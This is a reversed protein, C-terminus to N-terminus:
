RHRSQAHRGSPGDLWRHGSAPPRAGDSLPRGEGGSGFPSFPDGAPVTLALSPLGRLSDSSTAGLTMNLTGSFGAPLTKALVANASVSQTAASLSRYQGVAGSNAAGATAAFDALSLVRAGAVAPIGAVTAPAGALTSLAPDIAAGPLLGTVNGGIAYPAGSTLPTLNRASELLGSSANYKVDLNFRNDGRVRFDDGEVQGTVEGGETPGGGRLDATEARFRRRLVINVVRQDATFGYKLAVEEPLIDVRLIAETPIDRIENFGSIRRGNLLVVPTEGGRGRDSRTQPALEDLLETVTAVGYSQIEAPGMQIEPEIDGIVAGPLAQYATKGATVVVESM